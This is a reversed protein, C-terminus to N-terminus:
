TEAVMVLNNTNKHRRRMTDGREEKVQYHQFHMPSAAERRRQQTNFM